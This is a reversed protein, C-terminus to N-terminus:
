TLNTEHDLMEEHDQQLERSGEVLEREISLQPGVHDTTAKWGEHYMARSGLMEFYQTHRPAPASADALVPLLSAGDLPQQGVGDIVEPVAVGVADLITPMVDVAHCFQTRV